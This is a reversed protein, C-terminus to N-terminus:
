EPRLRRWEEGPGSPLRKGAIGADVETGKCGMEARLRLSRDCPLASCAGGRSLVMWLRRMEKLLRSM